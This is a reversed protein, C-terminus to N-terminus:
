DDFGILSLCMFSSFEAVFSFNRIYIFDFLEASNGSRYVHKKIGCFM